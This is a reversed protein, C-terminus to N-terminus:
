DEEERSYDSDYDQNDEDQNEEDNDDKGESESFMLSKSLNIALYLNSNMAIGQISAISLVKWPVLHTDKLSSYHYTLSIISNLSNIALYM